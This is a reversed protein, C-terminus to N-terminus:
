DRERAVLCARLETAVENMAPREQQYRRLCELVLNAMAPNASEALLTPSWPRPIDGTLTRHLLVGLSYVDAAMSATAFGTLYEPPWHPEPGRRLPGATDGMRKAVGLDLITASRSDVLINEQYVDRHIYGALHLRALADAVDGLSSLSASVQDAQSTSPFQFTTGSIWGLRMYRIGDFAGAELLNPFGREGSMARTIEIETSVAELEYAREQLSKSAYWYFGYASSRRETPLSDLIHDSGFFVKLVEPHEDDGIRIVTSRRTFALLLCNGFGENKVRDMIGAAPHLPDLKM